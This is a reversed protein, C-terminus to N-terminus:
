NLENEDLIFKDFKTEITDLSVAEETGIRVSELLKKYNLRILGVTQIYSPNSLCLYSPSTVTVNCESISTFLKDINKVCSGKGSMYVDYTNKDFTTKCLELLNSIIDTYKESVIEDIQYQTLYKYAEYSDNKYVPRKNSSNLYANGLVYTVRDLDSTKVGYKNVLETEISYSGVGYTYSTYFKGRKFLTVSSDFKNINFIACNVDNEEMIGNYLCERDLFYNGVRLNCSTVISSYREFISTPLLLVNFLTKFTTSKYRLPAYDMTQGNDLHYEVPVVSIIKKDEDHRVKCAVNYAEKIDHDCILSNRGTVPSSTTFALVEVKDSPLSLTVEEIMIDHKLNITDRIQKITSSVIADDVIEGNNLGNCSEEFVDYVYFKDNYYEGITVRITDNVFELTTFIQNRTM